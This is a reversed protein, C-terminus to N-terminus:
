PPPFPANRASDPSPSSGHLVLVAALATLLCVLTARANM